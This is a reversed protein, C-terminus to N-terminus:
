FSKITIHFILIFLSIIIKILKVKIFSKINESFLLISGHGDQIISNIILTELHIIGNLYLNFFILNPGSTPILGIAIAMILSLYNNPLDKKFIVTENLIDLLIITIFLWILLRFFHKKFIHNIIHEIIFHPKSFIIVYISLISLITLLLKETYNENLSLNLIILLLFITALILRFFSINKFKPTSINDMCCYLNYHIIEKKINNKEKFLKNIFLGSIISIPILYLNLKFFITPSSSLMFFAEDGTTAILGAILSGLKIIGHSYLIIILFSGSCGPILGLFTSILLQFTSKRRLFSIIKGSTKLNLYEFIIMLNLIFGSIITIEKLIALAEKM